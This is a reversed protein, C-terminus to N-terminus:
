RCMSWAAEDVVLTVDEHLQLISGPVDPAVPGFFVRRVADAKETGSAAVLIKRARFISRIGMTYAQTPKPGDGFSRRAAELTSPSLDVCHTGMEFCPGPENFGIHGNRGLGLLQLDPRGVSALTAEYARCAEASDLVSGDPIHARSPDMDVRDFLRTRMSHAFSREDEPGLGRYEDLNVTTVEAFSLEGAEHRRVLEDYIGVTTEGTALGLVCRPRLLIQAAIIGAARRAMEAGDRTIHIRM